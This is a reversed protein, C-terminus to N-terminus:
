HGAASTAEAVIIEGVMPPHYPCFYRGGRTFTQTWSERPQLDKSRWANKADTSKVAHMLFDDNIWTISDGSSIQLTRPEFVMGRIHVVHTKADPLKRSCSALFAFVLAAALLVAVGLVLARSRLVKV